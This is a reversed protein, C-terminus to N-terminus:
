KPLAALRLCEPLHLSDGLLVPWVVDLLEDKSVIRDRREILAVLLEFARAGPRAPVGDVLL